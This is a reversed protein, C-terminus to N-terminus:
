SGRCLSRQSYMLEWKFNVKNAHGNQNKHSGSTQANRAEQPGIVETSQLFTQIPPTRVPSAIEATIQKLACVADLDNVNSLVCVEIHL